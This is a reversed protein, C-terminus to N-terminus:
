TGATGPFFNVLLIYRPARINPSQDNQTRYLRGAYEPGYARIGFRHPFFITLIEVGFSADIMKNM